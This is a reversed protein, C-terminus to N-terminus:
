EELLDCIDTNKNKRRSEPMADEVQKQYDETM